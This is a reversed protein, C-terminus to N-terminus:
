LWSERRTELSPLGYRARDSVRAGSERRRPTRWAVGACARWWCTRGRSPALLAVAAPPRSPPRARWCLGAGVGRGAVASPPAVGGGV